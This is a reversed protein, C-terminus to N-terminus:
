NNIFLSFIYKLLNLYINLDLMIVCNLISCQLISFLKLYRMIQIFLTIYLIKYIIYQKNNLYIIIIVQASITREYKININIENKSILIILYLWM